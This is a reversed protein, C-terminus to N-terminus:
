FQLKSEQGCVLFEKNSSFETSLMMLIKTDLNKNIM